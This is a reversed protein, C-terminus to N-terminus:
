NVQVHNSVTWRRNSLLTSLSHTCFSMRYYAVNFMSEWYIVELGYKMYLYSKSQFYCDSIGLDQQIRNGSGVKSNITIPKM